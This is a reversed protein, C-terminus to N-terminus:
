SCSKECNVLHRDEDSYFIRLNASSTELVKDILPKIKVLPHQRQIRKIVFPYIWEHGWIDLQNNEASFMNGGKPGKM